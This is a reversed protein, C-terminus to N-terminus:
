RAYSFEDLNFLLWTFGKLQAPDGNVYTLAADKERPSPPRALVIRYGLDIAQGLDGGADKRLRDAFKASADTVLKDNMLFLSQPATVTRTREPCPTRGDDVDFAQLFNPMVDMSQHYGRQIYVGRRQLGSAKADAQMQGGRRGGGGGEEGAIQFSKGGVKLDLTQAASFISDWITEADLRLLPFQWLLKDAPDVARDQTMLAPEGVSAMRYTDSMVMLKNIAKMSFGKAVFESALWDLLEPHSPRGGLVGFDSPNAQLGKGFHWEWLRNVAVRAFLPNEPAVLWEAFTERRGDRFELGKPEFPFGPEVPKDKEPQDPEGNTLIYSPQKARLSDEEVTWFEPLATPPRIADSARQLTTYLRLNSHLLAATARHPM